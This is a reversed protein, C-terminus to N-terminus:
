SNASVEEGPARGLLTAGVPSEASLKGSSVDAETPGVITWTQPKNRGKDLIRAAMSRRGYTELEEIEAELAKM